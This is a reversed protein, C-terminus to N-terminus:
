FAHTIQVAIREDLAGITGHAIQTEGIWLPVNRAVTVPLIQGPVLAAIASVPLAM